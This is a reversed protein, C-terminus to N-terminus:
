QLRGSYFRDLSLLSRHGDLWGGKVVGGGSQSVVGTDFGAGRGGGQELDEGAGIVTGEM